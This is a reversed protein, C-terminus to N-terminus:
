SGSSLNALTSASDNWQSNLAEQLDNIVLQTTLFTTAVCSAVDSTGTSVVGALLPGPLGGLVGLDALAAVGVGGVALGLTV